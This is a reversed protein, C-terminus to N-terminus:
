LKGKLVAIENEAKDILPKNVSLTVMAKQYGEEQNSVDFGEIGKLVTYSQVTKMASDYELKLQNLAQQLEKINEKVFKKQEPTLRSLKENAKAQLRADIESLNEAGLKNISCFISLVTWLIGGVGIIIKFLIPNAQFVQYRDLYGWLSMFNVFAVCVISVIINTITCKNFYLWKFFKKVKSMAKGEKLIEITTAVNRAIEKGNEYPNSAIEITSVRTKQSALDCDNAGGKKTTTLTKLFSLFGVITVLLILFSSFSDMKSKDYGNFWAVGIAVLLGIWLNWNKKM